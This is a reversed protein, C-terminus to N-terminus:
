EQPAEPAASEASDISDRGGMLVQMKRNFPNQLQHLIRESQSTNASKYSNLVFKNFQAQKGGTAAYAASFKAMSDEDGQQGQIGTTKIAEVLANRAKKQAAEYATIRYMGDNVIAEDIPRGGALRSLSAFSLFDNTGIISGKSSTSFVVGNGTTAQLDQALGALPRSIGNHEM